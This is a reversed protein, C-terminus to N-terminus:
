TLSKTPSCPWTSTIVREFGNINDNKNRGSLKEPTWLEFKCVAVFVITEDCSLTCRTATSAAAAAAPPPPPPPPPPTTTTTPRRDDDDNDDNNSNSSNIRVRPCGNMKSDIYPTRRGGSSCLLMCNSYTTIRNWNTGRIGRRSRNIKKEREQNTERKNKRRKM